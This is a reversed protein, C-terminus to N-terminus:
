PCPKSAGTWTERAPQTAVTIDTEAVSIRTVGPPAIGLLQVSMVPGIVTVLMLVPSLADPCLKV